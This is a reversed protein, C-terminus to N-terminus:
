VYEDDENDIVKHKLEVNPYRNCYRAVDALKKEDLRLLDNRDEDELEMIDFISEIDKTQCRKLSRM